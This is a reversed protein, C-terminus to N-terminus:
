VRRSRECREAVPALLLVSSSAYKLRSDDRHRDGELSFAIALFDRGCFFSGSTSASRTPSAEQRPFSSPLAEVAFDSGSNGDTKTWGAESRPARGVIM